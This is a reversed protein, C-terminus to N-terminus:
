IFLRAIWNIVFVVHSSLWHLADWVFWLLRMSFYECPDNIIEILKEAQAKYENLKAKEAEGMNEDASLEDIEAKLAEIEDEWFITVREEDLLELDYGIDEVAEVAEEIEELLAEFGAKIEEYEAKQEDTLNDSNVAEIEAIADEITARDDSSVTEPNFSNEIGAIEELKAETEAIKAELNEVEEAMGELASKEDETINDSDILAQIDEKLQALAESDTSKVTEEDYGNVATDIRAIEDATANIKELLTDLAEENAVLQEREADTINDGDALAQIDEKLQNIAEEDSSKVTEEDYGNVANEIREIENATEDIKNILSDVTADLEGLKTREDETINTADTLAKIDEILQELDAKDSSKVSEEDYGNVATEIRAIEEATANIRELLANLASANGNLQEREADTINDGDTLAKIDALLNEIDAKDASTVTAEDYANTADNIRCIEAVTEDIKEILKTCTEDAGLLLTREDATINHTDLLAKIDAILQEIDAKDSSKVSEFVYKDVAEIIRKIEDSIATIKDILGLVKNHAAQLNEKEEATVNDTLALAYIDDNLQALADKDASTVTAEDYGNAAAIVRDYESKTEAIKALLADATADLSELKAREEATINQGDALAKINVKLLEIDAKDSSKVTANDYGNIATEIRTIENAVDSIRNRLATIESLINDFEKTEDETLNNRYEFYFQGVEYDFSELTDADDSTVTDINYEATKEKYGALGNAVIEIRQRMAACYSQLTNWESIKDENALDKVANELQNYVYEVNEKDSSKVNEVTLGEIGSKDPEITFKGSIFTIDYNPNNENTLTGQGIEYVGVNEGHTRVIEGALSSKYTEESVTFDLAPDAEGYIKSADTATVTVPRKEITFSALEIDNIAYYKDSDATSVKVTYTGANIPEVAEGDKYYTVTIAGMGTIEPSVEVAAYKATGDYVLNEPATYVFNEAAASRKVLEFEVSATAGGVTVSATYTGATKPASGDATSYTVNVAVSTDVLNNEVTAEKATIGDAYLDAPASITLTGEPDPCNVGNACVATITNGSASYTYSHALATGSIERTDTRGCGYDCFATEKANSGCMANTSLTYTTYKHSEVSGETLGCASCTKPAQCTAPKWTHGTAPTETKTGSTVNGCVLCYKYNSLGPYECTAKVEKHEVSIASCTHSATASTYCNSFPAFNSIPANSGGGSITVISVCNKITSNNGGGYGAIGGIQGLEDKAKFTVNEVRCNEITCDWPYGTIAGMGGYRDLSQSPAFTSDKIVLNKVTGTNLQAILGCIRDGGLSPAVVQTCYLGSIYHGNGDITGRFDRSNSRGYLPIWDYTSGGNANVVVDQLLVAKLNITESSYTNFVVDAFGYLEKANRIAYYGNFQSWNADTLGLKAYNSSSIKQPTVPVGDYPTPTAAFATLSLPAMSLLMALVLLISILKNTKKM